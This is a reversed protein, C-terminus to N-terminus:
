VTNREFYVGEGQTGRYIILSVHNGPRPPFGTLRAPGLLTSPLSHHPPASLAARTQRRRSQKKEATRGSAESWSSGMVGTIGGPTLHRSRPQVHIVARGNAAAARSNNTSCESGDRARHDGGGRRLRGTRRDTHGDTVAATTHKRLSHTLM